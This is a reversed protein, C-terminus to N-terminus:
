IIIMVIHKRQYTKLCSLHSCSNGLVGRWAKNQIPHQVDLVFTSSPYCTSYETFSQNFTSSTISLAPYRAFSMTVGYSTLRAAATALQKQMCELRESSGELNVVLALIKIDSPDRLHWATCLNTHVFLALCVCRM